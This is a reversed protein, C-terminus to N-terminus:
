IYSGDSLNIREFQHIEGDQPCVHEADDRREFATARHQHRTPYRIRFPGLRFHRYWKGSPLQVIYVYYWFSM